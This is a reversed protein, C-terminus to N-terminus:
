CHWPSVSLVRECGAVRPSYWFILRIMANPSGEGLSLRAGTERPTFRRSPFIPLKPQRHQDLALEDRYGPNKPEDDALKQTIAIAKRHEAEAESPKGLNSLLMGLNNHCAAHRGRFGTAAPNNDALKQFVALSKRYRM